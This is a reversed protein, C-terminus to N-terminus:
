NTVPLLQKASLLVDFFGCVHRALHCSDFEVGVEINRHQAAETFNASSVFVYRSDVVVTKAHLCARKDAEPDLSRPDFFVEPLPRDKPWQSQRFRAAFRRVLEGSSTTDGHPRQIDLFLRVALSPIELMRDALSQFVKHGQYVAFGAVLVSEQANAFLERVVVGTDRNLIGPVDPGTTVLNLVDEIRPRNGRDARLIDLTAAIQDPTFGLAALKDLAEVTPLAADRSIIRQLAVSSYPAPLRGSRLANAVEQMDRDSLQLLPETM